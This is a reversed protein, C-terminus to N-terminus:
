NSFAIIVHPQLKAKEIRIFIVSKIQSFLKSCGPLTNLTPPWVYYILAVATLSERQKPYDQLYRAILLIIGISCFYTKIFKRQM